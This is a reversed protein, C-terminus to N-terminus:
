AAREGATVAVRSHQATRAAMWGLDGFAPKLAEGEPSKLFKLAARGRERVFNPPVMVSEPSVQALVLRSGDPAGAPPGYRSYSNYAAAEDDNDDNAGDAGQPPGSARAVAREMQKKVEKNFADGNSGALSTDYNFYNPLQRQQPMATRFRADQPPFTQLVTLPLPEFMQQRYIESYYKDALTGPGRDSDLVCTREDYFRGADVTSAGNVASTGPCAYLPHGAFHHDVRADVDQDHPSTSTLVSGHGNWSDYGGNSLWPRGNNMPLPAQASAFVNCFYAGNQNQADTCYFLTHWGVNGNHLYMCLVSLGGAIPAPACLLPDPQQLWKARIEELKAINRVRVRPLARVRALTMGQLAAFDRVLLKPLQDVGAAIGPSIPDAYGNGNFNRLDVAAANMSGRTLLPIATPRTWM